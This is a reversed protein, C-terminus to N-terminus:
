FDEELTRCGVELRRASACFRPPTAPRPPSRGESQAGAQVSPAVTLWLLREQFRGVLARWRSAPAEYASRLPERPPGALARAGPGGSGAESIAERILETSRCGESPLPEPTVTLPQRAHSAPLPSRLLIGGERQYLRQKGSVLSGGLLAPRVM